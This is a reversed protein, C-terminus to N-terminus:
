SQSDLFSELGLDLGLDVLRALVATPVKDGHYGDGLFQILLIARGGTTSVHSLFAKHPELRKVFAAVEDAFWQHKVERRVCYRWRTDPYNGQLVTGKPTKRRDGVRHLRAPELGLAATIEDPDITPHIILLEIDFRRTTGDEADSWDRETV